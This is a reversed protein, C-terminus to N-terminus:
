RSGLEERKPSGSTARAVKAEPNRPSFQSSKAKEVNPRPDEIFPYTLNIDRLTLNEIYRGEEATILIRGETKSTVNSISINRLRPERGEYDWQKKEQHMWDGNRDGAGPDPLYLSLHIPRNYILPAKTDCVLNNVTIDEVTGASEAYIAFARSSNYVINNSFTVQSIDRFTENGIKLAACLCEIVNNSVLWGSANM